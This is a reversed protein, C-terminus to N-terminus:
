LRPVSDHGGAGDQEGAGLEGERHSKVDHKRGDRNSEGAVERNEFSEPEGSTTLGIEIEELVPELDKRDYEAHSHHRAQHHGVLEAAVPRYEGIAGPRDDPRQHGVLHQRREKELRAEEADHQEAQCTHAFRQVVSGRQGHGAPVSVEAKQIRAALLQICVGAPKMVPALPWSSGCDHNAMM